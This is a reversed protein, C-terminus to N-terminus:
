AWVFPPYKSTMWYQFATLRVSWRMMVVITNFLGQPLRGLILVAFWGVFLAVYGILFVFMAAIAAPLVLLWNLLPSWRHIREPRPFQLRVPYSPDDAMSFPPYRDTLLFLYASVRAGWRQAGVMFNFLGQPYRGTILVAFWSILLTIYVGIGLVMLVLFHPIVLLWKVFILLRSLSAPYEVDLTLPYDPNPKPM